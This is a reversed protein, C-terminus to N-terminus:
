RESLAELYRVLVVTRPVVTNLDVWERDTHEDYEEIGLADVTPTFQAAVNGDSVGGAQWEVVKAGYERKAIAKYTDILKQVKPTKEEPGVIIHGEVSISTGPVVPKLGKIAKDLRQLEALDFCRVEVKATAADPIVNFKTNPTSVVAVNITNPRIFQGHDAIHKKALTEPAYMDPDAPVPSALKYLATIVHGLEMTASAAHHAANGAHGSRGAVNIVYKAYGKRKAVMGWNPRATDMVLCVDSAKALRAILADGEDSGTEEEADFYLTVEGYRRYDFDKLLQMTYLLQLATAKDDGVGPGFAHKQADMRFPRKAADGHVFVTDTHAMLLIRKTGTGKFRAILHTGKATQMCETTAGLATLRADLWDAIAKSGAVDGTGSDINTLKELDTVYPTFYGEAKAKLAADPIAEAALVPAAFLLSAALAAFFRM